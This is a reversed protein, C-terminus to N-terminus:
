ADFDYSVIENYNAASACRFLGSNVMVFNKHCKQFTAFLVISLKVGVFKVQSHGNMPCM